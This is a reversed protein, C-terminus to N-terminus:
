PELGTRAVKAAFAFFLPECTISGGYATLQSARLTGGGSTHQWRLGGGGGVSCNRMQVAMSKSVNWMPLVYLEQQVRVVVGGDQPLHANVVLLTRGEIVQHVTRTGARVLWKATSEASSNLCVTSMFTPAHLMSTRGRNARACTQEGSERLQVYPKAGPLRVQQRALHTGLGDPHVQNEFKGQKDVGDRAWAAHM